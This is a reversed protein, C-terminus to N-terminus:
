QAPRARRPEDEGPAAIDETKEAGFVTLKHSANELRREVFKACQVFLGGSRAAPRTSCAGQFPQLIEVILQMISYPSFYEGGGKGEQTAFNFLFDEYIFGFAAGELQTPLPVFLCM